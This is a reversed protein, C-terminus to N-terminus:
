FKRGSVLPQLNETALTRGELLIILTKNKVRSSLYFTSAFWLVISPLPLPGLRGTAKCRGLTVGLILPGPKYAIPEKGNIVMNLNHILATTQKEAYVYQSPELDTIDGAAWVDQANKVRFFNDVMLYKSDNLFTEPIFESNPISGLTPLYLDVTKTTGDSLFLETQDKSTPKADTIKTSYIIQAHLKRLERDAASAMGSTGSTLLKSGSTILTIEKQSGYEFALEGATEVGTPGGGGIAITKSNKVLEQFKHLIEKTAEYGSTSTYWPVKANGKARSGTAIVLIEYQQQREGKDTMITVTKTDTNLQTALGLVFEVTNGYKELGDPISAFLKEDSFQGPVIARVSAINWYHHTTPSVLVVRYEDQKNKLAHKLVPSLTSTAHGHTVGLGVYSAGLILVTKAM